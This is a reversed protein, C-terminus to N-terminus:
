LSELNEAGYAVMTKTQGSFGAENQQTRQSVCNAVVALM